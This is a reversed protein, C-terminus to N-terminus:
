LLIVGPKGDIAQVNEYELLDLGSPPNKINVPGILRGTNLLICFATAEAFTLSDYSFGNEKGSTHELPSEALTKKPGIYVQEKDFKVIVEGWWRLLDIAPVDCDYGFALAGRIADRIRSAVTSTAVHSPRFLYAKPHQKYACVVINEYKKWAALTCRPNHALENPDLSDLKHM